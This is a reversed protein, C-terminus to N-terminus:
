SDDSSITADISYTMYYLVTVSDLETIFVALLYFVAGSAWPGM